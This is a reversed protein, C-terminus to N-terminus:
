GTFTDLKKTKQKAQKNTKTKKKLHNINQKPVAYWTVVKM